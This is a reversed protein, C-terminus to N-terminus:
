NLHQQKVYKLYYAQQDSFTSPIIPSPCYGNLNSHPSETGRQRKINLLENYITNNQNTSSPTSVQQFLNFASNEPIHSPTSPHSNYEHKPTPVMNVYTSANLNQITNMINVYSNINNNILYKNLTQYNQNRIDNNENLNLGHSIGVHSNNGLILLFMFNLLDYIYILKRGHSTLTRFSKISDARSRNENSRRRLLPSNKGSFGKINISDFTNDASDKIAEDSRFLKIRFSNNNSNNNSSCNSM